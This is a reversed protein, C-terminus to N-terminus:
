EMVTVAKLFRNKYYGELETITVGKAKGSSSHIFKINGEEDKSYVIGVHGPRRVRANSGTFVLIDGVKADALKIAKGKKAFDASSRAGNFGFQKYVYSVFGSCDFGIEPNSSAYRYRTGILSKAFDMIKNSTSNAVEPIRSIVKEMMRQYQMTLSVNDQAKSNLAFVSFLLITILIKKM